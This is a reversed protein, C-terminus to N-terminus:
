STLVEAVQASALERVKALRSEFTNRRVVRGGDYTVTLGGITDDSSVVTCDAGLAKVTEAALKADEPAVHMECPGDVGALAEEALARFVAEYEKTGRMAALRRAAEAFVEDAAAERVAALRRKAELRAANVMKNAKAQAAESAAAVRGQTIREAEERAENEIAKAQLEAVRLIEAIEADAQEELARFIDEIAM